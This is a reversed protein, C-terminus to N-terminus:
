KRKKRRRLGTIAVPLNLFKGLLWSHFIVPSGRIDTHIFMVTHSVAGAPIINTKGWQMVFDLFGLSM